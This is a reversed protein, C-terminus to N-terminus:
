TDREIKLSDMINDDGYRRNTSDSFGLQKWNGKQTEKPENPKLELFKLMMKQKYTQIISNSTSTESEVAM